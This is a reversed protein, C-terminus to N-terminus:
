LGFQYKEVARGDQFKVTVVKRNQNAGATLISEQWILVRMEPFGGSAFTQKGKGFLAEVHELPTGLQISDFKEKSIRNTFSCPGFRNFFDGSINKISAGISATADKVSAGIKAASFGSTIDKVGEIATRIGFITLPVIVAMALLSGGVWVLAFKGDVLLGVLLLATGAVALIIGLSIELASIGFKKAPPPNRKPEPVPQGNWSGCYKCKNTEPNIPGGCRECFM